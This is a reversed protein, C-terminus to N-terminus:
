RLDGSQENRLEKLEEELRVNRAATDAMVGAQAELHRQYESYQNDSARNVRDLMRNIERRLVDRGVTDINEDIYRRIERVELSVFM